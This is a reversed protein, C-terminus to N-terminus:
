AAYQTIKGKEGVSLVPITPALAMSLIFEHHSSVPPFSPLVTGEPLVALRVGNKQSKSSFALVTEGATNVGFSTQSISTSLNKYVKTPKASRKNQRDSAWLGGDEERKSYLNVIGNGSGVAIATATNTFHTIGLSGEDEFSYLVQATKRVDYVYLRSGAAVTLEQPGSYQVCTVTDEVSINTAVSGSSLNGIMVRGGAAVCVMQPALLPSGGGGTTFSYPTCLAQIFFEKKSQDRRGNRHIGTNRMDLFSLPTQQETSLNVLIPIYKEHGVVVVQEGNGCLASKEVRTDVDIKSLQETYGGASFFTYVHHRGGVVVIQGNRHWQITQPVDKPLPIVSLPVPALARQKNSRSVLLPESKSLLTDLDESRFRKNKAHRVRAYPDESDDNDDRSHKKAELERKADSTAWSPLVTSSAMYSPVTGKEDDDDVWNVKSKPPMHSLFVISPSELLAALFLSSTYLTSRLFLFALM